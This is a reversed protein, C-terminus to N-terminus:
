RARNTQAGGSRYKTFHLSLFTPSHGGLPFEHYTISLERASPFVAIICERVEGKMFERFNMYLISCVPASLLQQIASEGVGTGTAGCVM